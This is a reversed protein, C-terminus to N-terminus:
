IKVSIIFLLTFYSKEDSIVKPQIILDNFGHTRRLTPLQYALVVTANLILKGNVQGTFYLHVGLCLTFVRSHEVLTPDFFMMSESWDNEVHIIFNLLSPFGAMVSTGDAM